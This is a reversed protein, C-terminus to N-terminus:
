LCARCTARSHTCRAPAQFDPRWQFGIERARTYEPPGCLNEHNVVIRVQDLVTASAVLCRHTGKDFPELPCHEAQTKAHETMALIRFVNSLVNKQTCKATHM